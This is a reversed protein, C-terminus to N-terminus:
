QEAWALAEMRAFPIRRVSVATMARPGMQCIWPFANMRRHIVNIRNVIMERQPAIRMAIAHVITTLTCVPM